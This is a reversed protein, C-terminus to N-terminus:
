LRHYQLALSILKIIYWVYVNKKEKTTQTKHWTLRATHDNKETKGKAKRETERERCKRRQRERESTVCHSRM